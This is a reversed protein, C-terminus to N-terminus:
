KTWSMRPGPCNRNYPRDHLVHVWEPRLSGSVVPKDDVLIDGRVL